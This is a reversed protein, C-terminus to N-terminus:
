PLTNLRLRFFLASPAGAPYVVTQDRQYLGNGLPTLVPANSCSQWGVLNTSSELQLALWPPLSRQRMTVNVTTAAPVVAIQPQSIASLADTGLAFEMLDTVGDADTDGAGVVSLSGYSAREFSDPILDGDADFQTWHGLFGAPVLAKPTIRVMDIDGTLNRTSANDFCAINLPQANALSNTTTDVVNTLLGGDLYIRLLKLAPNRTDRVAAVHHWQGDNVLPTVATALCEVSGDCVLFRLQGNEVRLWWSPLLPGYDKAVLAGTQTSGSPIRFVAELTFANTAGFDFHNDTAADAIRLGGTGDFTLASGGGFNTGALIYAFAKQATLNNSLAAPSVDLIAGSNTNATQGPAKEEFNWFAPQPNEAATAASDLWAANFRALTITEYPSSEGQEYLLAADGSTTSALDSYASPGAYILKPAGWARAENLSSWISINVRANADNPCAFLIRNTGAGAAAMSWRLLSGQVVPCIFSTRNTGPGSFSSGGDNSWSEARTGATSGSERSNFYVSSGNGPANAALEVGMTENPSVGAAADNIAGLQWTAGHDDSIITHIGNVNNTTIHDCAVVLRGAQNGYHLQIGHGPGTAYWNWSSLKATATIETRPAWTMGDDTSVTHFVRSNNRCFLLHIAGTMEDVVPAPNGITITANGGEEQVLQLPLWTAGNNTSRRLVIDIDGSDSSSTKRGECFALLTGNTSRVLAPIRYTNYGGQGAVFPVTEVFTATSQAQLHSIWM